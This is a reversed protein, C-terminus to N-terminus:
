AHGTGNLASVNAAEEPIEMVSGLSNSALPLPEPVPSAIAMVDEVTLPTVGIATRTVSLDYDLDGPVPNSPEAPLYSAPLVAGSAEAAPVVSAQEVAQSQPPPSEPASIELMVPQAVLQGSRVAQGIESTMKSWSQAYAVFFANAQENSGNFGGAMM